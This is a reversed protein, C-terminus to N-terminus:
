KKVDVPGNKQIHSPFVAGMCKIIEKLSKRVDKLLSSILNREEKVIKDKQPLNNDCKGRRKMRM